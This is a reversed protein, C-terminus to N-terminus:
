VGDPTDGGSNRGRHQPLGGTGTRGLKVTLPTARYQSLPTVREGTQKPHPTFWGERLSHGLATLGSPTLLSAIKAAVVNFGRGEHM